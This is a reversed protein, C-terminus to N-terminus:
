KKRGTMQALGIGFLVAFFVVQLVENRAAADFFSTPVTHELVGRVTLTTQALQRGTDASATHLDVGVGPRVLNVAGLGIFLAVTTVAEFYFISKLALRGVRKLDDGHGAIGVVLASFVLPVVISKIMRLFISSVPNLYGSLAVDPWFEHNAWGLLTGVVMSILIWQSLSISRLRAFM